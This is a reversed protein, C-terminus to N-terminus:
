ARAARDPVRVVQVSVPSHRVVRESVSGLLFRDLGRRGHSGVIILDPRWQGAAELIAHEAEGERLETDVTFRAATLTRAADALLQEGRRRSEARAAILDAAAGPGEGFALSAPLGKPWEDAHVIRVAAGSSSFQRAVSQIAAQSCPSDDIAILIKM